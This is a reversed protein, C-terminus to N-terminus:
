QQPANMGMGPGGGSGSGPGRFGKGGGMPGLYQSVGAAEAKDHMATRLDFLEGAVKAAAQPDPKESQMIARKEAQKMAIQKQLAQNDKFFKSVKEKAAPDLQQMMQGQMMPSGMQPCNGYGGNGHGGRGWNASAVTAMTLGAILVIAAIQKKM